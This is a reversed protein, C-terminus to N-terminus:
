DRGHESVREGGDARPILEHLLTANEPFRQRQPRWQKGHQM